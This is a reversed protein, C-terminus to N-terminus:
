CYFCMLTTLLENYITHFQLSLCSSHTRADLVHQLSFIQASTRQPQDNVCALSQGRSMWVSFCDRCNAMVADAPGARPPPRGRAAPALEGPGPTNAPAPLAAQPTHRHQRQHRPHLDAFARERQRVLAHLRGFVDRQDHAGGGAGGALVFM